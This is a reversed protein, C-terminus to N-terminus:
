GGCDDSAEKQMFKGDGDGGADQGPPWQMDSGEDAGGMENVETESCRCFPALERQKEGKLPGWFLLREELGM